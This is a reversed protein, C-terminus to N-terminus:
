EDEKKIAERLLSKVYTAFPINKKELHDIIDSDTKKFLKVTKVIVNNKQYEKDYKKKNESQVM